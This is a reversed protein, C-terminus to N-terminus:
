PYDKKEIKKSRINLLCHKLNQYFDKKIFLKGNIDEQLKQEKPYTISKLDLLFM